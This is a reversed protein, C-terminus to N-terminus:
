SSHRGARIVAPDVSISGACLFSPPCPWHQSLYRLLLPLAVGLLSEQDHRPEQILLFELFPPRGGVVGYGLPALLPKGEGRFSLLGRRPRPRSPFLLVVVPDKGLAIVEPLGILVYTTEQQLRVEPFIHRVQGPDVTDPDPLVLGQDLLWVAVRGGKM